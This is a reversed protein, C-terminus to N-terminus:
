GLEQPRPAQLSKYERIVEQQADFHAFDYAIASQDLCTALRMCWDEVTAIPMCYGDADVTYASDPTINGVYRLHVRGPLGFLTLKWPGVEVDIGAKTLVCALEELGEAYLVDGAAFSDVKTM